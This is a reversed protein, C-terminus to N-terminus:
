LIKKHLGKKLQRVMRALRRNQRTFEADLEEYRLQKLVITNAPSHQHKRPLSVLSQSGPRSLTDMTLIGKTLSISKNGAPRM